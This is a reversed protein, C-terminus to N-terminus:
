GTSPDGVGATFVVRALVGPALAWVVSSCPFQCRAEERCSDIANRGLPLVHCTLQNTRREQLLKWLELGAQARPFRGERTDTCSRHIQLKPGQVPSYPASSCRSGSSGRALATVPWSCSSGTNKSSSTKQTNPGHCPGEWGCSLIARYQSTGSFLQASPAKWAQADKDATSAPSCGGSVSAQDHHHSCWIRAVLGTTQSWPGPGKPKASFFEWLFSFCRFLTNILLFLTCYM